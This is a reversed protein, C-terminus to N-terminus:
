GRTPTAVVAPEMSSWAASQFKKRSEEVQASKLLAQYQSEYTVAMQPDDNSRGFNRQYGSVFIMAAMILMDPWYLSLSTSTNSASLSDPRYTGILEIQYAAAPWPGVIFQSQNIMAFYAPIGSGTSSPYINDLYEKTVPTLPNRTGLEPNATGAPTIANVQQLTVFTAIPITVYRTNITFAYTSNTLVTSLLDLDRYMRNEAYTIAQPLMQLFNVDDEAVVALNAITTVFTSYTLGTTM